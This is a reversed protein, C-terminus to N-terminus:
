LTPAAETYNQPKSWPTMWLHDRHGVGTKTKLADGNGDLIFNSSNHMEFHSNDAIEFFADDGTIYLQLKGNKNAGLKLM